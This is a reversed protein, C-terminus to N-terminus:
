GRKLPFQGNLSFQKAREEYERRADASELISGLARWLRPNLGFSTNHPCPHVRWAQRLCEVAGVHDGAALLALGLESYAHNLSCSAPEFAILDSAVRQRAAWVRLSQLRMLKASWGLVILISHVALGRLLTFLSREDPAVPLDPLPQENRLYACQWRKFAALETEIM